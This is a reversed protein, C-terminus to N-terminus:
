SYLWQRAIFLLGTPVSIVWLIILLYYDQYKHLKFGILELTCSSSRPPFFFPGPFGAQIRQTKKMFVGPIQPHAQPLTLSNPPHCEKYTYFLTNRSSEYEPQPASNRHARPYIDKKLKEEWLTNSSLHQSFNSLGRLQPSKVIVSEFWELLMYWEAIRSSQARPCTVSRLDSM